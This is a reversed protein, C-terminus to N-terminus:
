YINQQVKGLLDLHVERRAFYWSHELSEQGEDGLTYTQYEEQGTYTLM